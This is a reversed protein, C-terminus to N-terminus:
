VVKIKKYWMEDGDSKRDEPNITIFNINTTTEIKLKAQIKNKKNMESSTDTDVIYITKDHKNILQRFIGNIHEDNMLGLVRHSSSDSDLPTWSLILMNWVHRNFDYAKNWKSYVIIPCCFSQQKM